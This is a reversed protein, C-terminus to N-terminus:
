SDGGVASVLFAAGHGSDNNVVKLIKVTGSVTFGAASQDSYSQSGGNNLTFTPTTGGMNLVLPNSANAGCVVSTCATGNVSDQAISLLQFQWAKIRALSVGAQQLINTLSTFDLLATGSAAITTLFVFYQNAGGIVNNALGNNYLQSFTSKSANVTPSVVGTINNQANWQQAQSVTVNLSSIAM